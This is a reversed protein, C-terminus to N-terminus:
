FYVRTILPRDHHSFDIDFDPPNTRYLNIFREFYLDLEMPDVDTIRLLYAVISNAGSGRGVYFFNQRQAYSVIDWNMLFYSVFGMKKILFLEKDMRERVATTIEGYRYPLGENCLRELLTEDEEKSGSYNKQNQPERGKSFDFHITCSNMLRETNELIFGHESFANALKEVPVMKEGESAQETTSLKSLLTNNAIARLLRHANFDKKTRFTVPQLVVLKDTFKILRSFRLRKIDSISVGIFEHESFTQMEDQLVKEFPYIVYANKFMPARRRFKMEKHLHASLFNNLELYGENNKAIGVFCAEAGNRFDVGLIPKINLEFAKRVFNLGASTTNIDTLALQTMQHKKALHLLELESFTGYRLSYYTHCNLYM